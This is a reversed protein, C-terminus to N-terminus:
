SNFNIFLLVPFGDSTHKLRESVYDKVTSSAYDAPTWVNIVRTEGVHKSVMKFSDHVPIPDQPQSKSCATFFFLLLLPLYSTKM